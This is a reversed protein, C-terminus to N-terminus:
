GGTPTAGDMSGFVTTLAAVLDDRDIPGQEPLRALIDSVVGSRIEAARQDIRALIVSEDVDDGLNAAVVSLQDQIKYFEERVDTRGKGDRRQAGQYVLYNLDKLWTYIQEQKADTLAVLFGGAETTTPTDGLAIALIREMLRRNACHRRDLGLHWHWLHSSDSTAARNRVNDWGDVVRDGDVNCYIERVEELQGAKMAALLRRSQAIMAETSGPTFDFGAIHRLQEGTLGTQRTYTRNTCYRSKEIFEQSRHSGNFHILNGKTGAATRPRDTRRCLEDALWDLEPTVVERQYYLDTSMSAM